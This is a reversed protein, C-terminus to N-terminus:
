SKSRSETDYHSNNISPPLRSDSVRFHQSIEDCFALPNMGRERAAKQIKLGHEDTGTMFHVASNPRALRAYRAFIDAIVVSHLHGIHPVEPCVCRNAYVEIFACSGHPLYVYRRKSLIHTNHYLITQWAGTCCQYLDHFTQCAM